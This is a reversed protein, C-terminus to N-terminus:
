AALEGLAADLAALLREVDADATVPSLLMMNHFPTLLVGRNLLYLHLAQELAPRMAAESEVATRPPAAGYGIELRAGVRAVHWGTARARFLAALGLELRLALREMQTYSAPTLLERLAAELAALALLNASLTTGLGSHGAARESWVRRLEAEVEATFGYVACPVGGAIAKGCVLFDAALGHRRAYGGLGSSLTHTEDIALLTGSARTLRRLAELFGPAPLVMGVNTMVPEALVCAIDRAALAQELAAVDNFPVAVSAL